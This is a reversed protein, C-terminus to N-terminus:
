DPTRERWDIGCTEKGACSSVRRLDHICFALISHWSQYPSKVMVSDVAVGVLPSLAAAVALLLFKGYVKNTPGLNTWIRFIIPISTLSAIKVFVEGAVSRGRYNNIENGHFFRFFTWGYPNFWGVPILMIFVIFLWDFVLNLGDLSFTFKRFFSTGKKRLGYAMLANGGGNFIYFFLFITSSSSDYCMNWEQLIDHSAYEVMDGIAQSMISLNLFLIGNNGIRSQLVELRYSIMCMLIIGTFFPLIHAFKILGLAFGEPNADYALGTPTHGWLTDWYSSFTENPYYTANPLQCINCLAWKGVRHCPTSATGLAGGSGHASCQDQTTTANCWDAEEVVGIEDFLNAM